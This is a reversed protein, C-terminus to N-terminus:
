RFSCFHWNQKIMEFIPAIQTSVNVSITLIQGCGYIRAYFSQFIFEISINRENPLLFYTINLLNVENSGIRPRAPKYNASGTGVEFLGNRDRRRGGEWGMTFDIQKNNKPGELYYQKM